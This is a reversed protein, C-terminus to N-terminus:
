PRYSFAAAAGTTCAPRYLRGLHRWPETQRSKPRRRIQRYSAEPYRRCRELAAKLLSAPAHRDFLGNVVLAAM